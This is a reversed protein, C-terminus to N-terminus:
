KLIAKLNKEKGTTRYVNGGNLQKM